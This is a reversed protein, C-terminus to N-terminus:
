ERVFSAAIESPAHDITTASVANTCFANWSNMARSALPRPCDYWNGVCLGNSISVYGISARPRIKARLLMMWFQPLPSAGIIAPPIAAMAPPVSPQRHTKMTVAMAVM